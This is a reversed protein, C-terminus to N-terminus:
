IRDDGRTATRRDEDSRGAFKGRKKGRRKTEKAAVTMLKTNEPEQRLSVDMPLGIDSMKGLFADFDRCWKRGTERDLLDQEDSSQSVEGGADEVRVLRAALSGNKDAKLMVRYGEYPSDLYRAVGPELSAAAGSEGGPIEDQVIEYGLTELVDRVKGAFMSDAIAEGREYVFKAIDEYLKMFDPREIFKAGLLVDCRGLLEAGEGSSMVGGASLLDDKLKSLTERFYSTAAARERVKGWLVKLQARLSDLRGPFRTDASLKAVVPALREGEIEDHCSIRDALDRIDRVLLAMDDAVREKYGYRVENMGRMFRSGSSEKIEALKDTIGQLVAMRDGVPLTRARETEESIGRLETATRVDASARIIEMGAFVAEERERCREEDVEARRIGLSLARIDEFIKRSSADDVPGNEVASKIAEIERRLAGSVGADHINDIRGNEAAIEKLINNRLAERAERNEHIAKAASGAAMLVGTLALMKMLTYASVATVLVVSLLVVELLLSQFRHPTRVLIIRILEASTLLRM